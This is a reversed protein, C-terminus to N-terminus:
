MSLPLPSSSVSRSNNPPCRRNPARKSLAAFPTNFAQSQDGEPVNPRSPKPRLGILIPRPVLIENAFNNAEVESDSDHEPHIDDPPHDIDIVGRGEFYNHGLVYHGFEHAMSFRQRKPDDDANIAVVREERYLLGGVPSRGWHRFEVELRERALIDAIPTGPTAIGYKAVFKRALARIQECRPREVM